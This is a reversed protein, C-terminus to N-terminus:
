NSEIIISFEFTSSPKSDLFFLLQFSSSQFVKKTVKYGLCFTSRIRCHLAVHHNHLSLSSISDDPKFIQGNAHPLNRDLAIQDDGCLNSSQQMSVNSNFYTKHISTYSSSSRLPRSQSQHVREQSGNFMKTEKDM